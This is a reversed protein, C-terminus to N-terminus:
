AVRRWFKSIGHSDKLWAVVFRRVPLVSEWERCAEASIPGQVPALRQTLQLEAGEGHRYEVPAFEGVECANVSARIIIRPKAGKADESNM